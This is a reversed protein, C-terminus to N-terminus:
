SPLSRDRYRHDGAAPDTPGSLSRAEYPGSAYDDDFDPDRSSAKLLRGIVFGLTAAGAAFALPNRRAFQSVDHGLGGLDKDRIADSFRDIQDAAASAARRVMTDDEFNRGADRFAAAANDVRGAASDRAQRYRHEAEARADAAVKRAGDRVKDAHEEYEERAATGAADAERRLRDQLNKAEQQAEAKAERAVAEPSEDSVSASAKGHTKADNSM